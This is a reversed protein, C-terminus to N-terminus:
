VSVCQAAIYSPTPKKKQQQQSAMSVSSCGEDTHLAASKTMGAAQRWWGSSPSKHWISIYINMYTSRVKLPQEGACHWSQKVTAPKCFTKPHQKMEVHHSWRLTASFEKPKFPSFRFPLKLDAASQLSFGAAPSFYHCTLDILWWHLAKSRIWLPSYPELNTLLLLQQRGKFTDSICFPFCSTLTFSALSILKSM